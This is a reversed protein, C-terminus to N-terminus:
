VRQAIVGKVKQAAPDSESSNGIPESKKEETIFESDVDSPTEEALVSM